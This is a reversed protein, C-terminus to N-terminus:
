MQMNHARHKALESMRQRFEHRDARKEQMEHRLHQNEEGEELKAQQQLSLVPLLLLQRPLQRPLLSLPLQPFPLVPPPSFPPPLGKSLLMKVPPGSNM